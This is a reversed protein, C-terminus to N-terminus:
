LGEVIDKIEQLAKSLRDTNAQPTYDSRQNVPLPLVEHGNWALGGNTFEQQSEYNSTRHEAALPIGIYQWIEGHKRLYDAFGHIVQVGNPATIIGKDDQWGQMYSGGLTTLIRTWPLPGPCYPKSKPSIFNHGIIGGNADGAKMPINHNRCIWFSLTILQSLQVETITNQNNLDPKCIEISITQENANHALYSPTLGNDLSNNGNCWATDDTDVMQVIHGDTGLIFHPSRNRQSQFWQGLLHADNGGATGHYVLWHPIFGFRGTDQQTTPMWEAYPYRMAECRTPLPSLDYFM